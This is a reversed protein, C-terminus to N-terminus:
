EGRGQGDGLGGFPGRGRAAPRDHREEAHDAVVGLTAVADGAEGVLGVLLDRDTAHVLDRRIGPAAPGIELPEREQVARTVELERLCRDGHDDGRRVPGLGELRRPERDVGELLRDRDPLALVPGPAVVPGVAACSARGTEM